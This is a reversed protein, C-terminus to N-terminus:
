NNQSFNERTNKDNNENDNAGNESVPEQVSEVAVNTDDTEVESELVAEDENPEIQPETPQNSIEIDGVNDAEDDTNVPSIE